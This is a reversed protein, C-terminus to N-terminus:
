LHAESDAPRRSRNRSHSCGKQLRCGLSALLLLPSAVNAFQLFSGALSPTPLTICVSLIFRSVNIHISCPVPVGEKIHKTRENFDKCFNAININRKGLQPGLPPAPKAQQAPIFMHMFPPHKSMDVAAKAKKSMKTAARAAM